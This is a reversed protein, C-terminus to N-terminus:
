ASAENSVSVLKALTARATGGTIAHAAKEAAAVLDHQDTSIAYALAATMATAHFYPRMHNPVKGNVDLLALLARANNAADGGALGSSSVETLGFSAPTLTKHEVAGDQLRCAHTIGDVAIEDSGDHGSVVYARKTGLQALADGMLPVWSPAFVGIVQFPVRAPNTLPGLLNFLTRVGMEKRVPAVHKTAGHFAPAFAFGIGCAEVCRGVRDAPMDIAVGLAALVDASGSNSSQARNGHKLVPVGMSAVVIAATTSINLWGKGDGGTGCTDVARDQGAFSMPTALSRMATAAGALQAATEGNRRLLALLAAIQAPPWQGHMISTVVRTMTAADPVVGGCLQELLSARAQPLFEASM